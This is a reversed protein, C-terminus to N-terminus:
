EAGDEEGDEDWFGLEKYLWGALEEDSMVKLKKAGAESSSSGAYFWPHLLLTDLDPRLATDRTLSGHLNYTLEM